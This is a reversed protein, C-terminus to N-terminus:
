HVLEALSIQQILNAVDNALAVGFKFEEDTGQMNFALTLQGNFTGAAIQFMPAERFGGTVILSNIAVDGFKAKQDDIIGFNTYAVERVHYNDEVTKQLEPLTKTHYNNLLGAVSDFCQRQDKLSTMEKHFREILKLLPETMETDINLNYRSTMNAIQTTEEPVTTFQRMDTPCALAISHTGAFNQMVRGFAAMVVDNVTIEAQHTAAILQKTAGNSFTVHGVRYTRSGQKELHPLLLPEDPHDTKRGPTQQHQAVLEELWGIDQSNHVNKLAEPGQTYAKALLYLLQKSGAGDTLIHSIYLTLRLGGNEENWYIQLQPDKMLDWKQADTDVDTVQDHILTRPDDTVSVWQNTSLEYRCCLAPVVGCVASLAAEFRTRDLSKQFNIEIRVVPYLTDLGITHLINLPEGDFTTM